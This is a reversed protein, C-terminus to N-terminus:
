DGFQFLWGFNYGGPNEGSGLTVTYQTIPSGETPYRWGGPILQSSNAYSFVDVSVCYTGPDLDAFLYRGDAATVDTALGTSPCAGEGLDVTVDAIGPEWDPEYVGDSSWSNPTPGTQICGKGLVIPDGGEGGTFLCRDKWVVGSISAPLICLGPEQGSTVLGFADRCTSDISALAALPYAANGQLPSGAEALTFHDNYDFWAPERPGGDTVVGWLFSEANGILNRKFALQVRDSAQPSIRVWAADPDDGWGQDFVVQEYGDGVQPPPDAILAQDGGVDGNMDRYVRVGTATWETSPPASALILWDGRGDLDLDLEAAYDAPSGPPPASQLFITVYIWPGSAKLEARVIDLHPEYAMADSQFPREYRNRQFDDGITRAEDAFASSSLDTLFRDYGDPNGPIDVHM